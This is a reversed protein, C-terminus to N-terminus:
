PRAGIGTRLERMRFRGGAEPDLPPTNAGEGHALGEILESLADTASVRPEWGLEERARTTDMAPVGMGMDLWGAPTPQLRARWSAQAAARLVRPDVEAPRGGLAAALEAPGLQPEAAINFAGRARKALALAFARASDDTHVCQMRLGAPLPVVPVKRRLVANPFFPGAFLRRIEAAAQSKFMLGPRMRAIAIEPHAPEFADLLREVESKQVSYVSSAIGTTPHSEDVRAEAREVAVPAYPGVSSAYVIVKA